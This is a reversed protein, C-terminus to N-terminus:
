LAHQLWWGNAPVSRGAADEEEFGWARELTREVARRRRSSDQIEVTEPVTAHPGVAEWSAPSSQAEEVHQHELEKKMKFGPAM